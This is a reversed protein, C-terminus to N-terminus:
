IDLSRPSVITQLQFYAGEAKNSSNGHKGAIVFMINPQFNDTPEAPANETNGAAVAAATTNAGSVFVRFSEIYIGDGTIPLTSTAGLSSITYEYLKKNSVYYGKRVLVNTANSPRFMLVTGGDNAGGSLPCSKRFSRNTDNIDTGCFFVTGYRTDRTMAEINTNLSDMVTRLGDVKTYSKQMAFLAEMSLMAVTLFIASAVMLEVLTFGRLQVQRKKVVNISSCQQVVKM